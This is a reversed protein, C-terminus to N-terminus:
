FQKVIDVYLNILSITCNYLLAISIEFLLSSRTYTKNGVLSNAAIM